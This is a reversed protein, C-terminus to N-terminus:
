GAGNAPRTPDSNQRTTIPFILGIETEFCLKQGLIEAAFSKYVLVPTPLSRGAPWLINYPGYARLGVHECSKQLKIRFIHNSDVSILDTKIAGPDIVVM